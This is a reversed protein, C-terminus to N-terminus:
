QPPLEDDASPAPEEPKPKPKPAPKPAEAIAADPVDAMALPEAPPPLEAFPEMSPLPLPEIDAPEESAIPAAPAPAELAAADRSRVYRLGGAIGGLTVIAFVAGAIAISKSSGSRAATTSTLITLAQRSGDARPQLAASHAPPVTIRALGSALLANKMEHASSWREERRFRLARDIIQAFPDPLHPAVSRIPPAPKSAAAVLAEQPTRGPHVHRGTLLTFLTAGAAWIDTRADIEDVHGLAQEPALYAPTGLMTGTQTKTATVNPDRLRAIGFDLIKLEQRMTFFLNEPKLDRHVIGAAHARALVDLLAIGHHVVDPIPLVHGSRSARQELTEGELLEMVLYSVGNTTDHDLIRVTGPHEVKNAVYGERLFRSRILEDSTHQLHLVKIAVRDGNRATGAYVSATGGVGLVADLRYKGLTAGVRAHAEQAFAEFM